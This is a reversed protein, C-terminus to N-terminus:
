LVVLMNGDDAVAATPYLGSWISETKKATPRDM